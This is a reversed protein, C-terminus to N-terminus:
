GSQSPWLESTSNLDEDKQFGGGKIRLAWSVVDALAKLNFVKEVLHVEILPM